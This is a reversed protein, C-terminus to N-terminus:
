THLVHIIFILLASQEILYDTQYGNRSYEGHYARAYAGVGGRIVGQGIRSGFGRLGCLDGIFTGRIVLVRYARCDRNIFLSRIGNHAYDCVGFLPHAGGVVYLLALDAFTRAYDYRVVAVYQGVIVDDLVAVVVLNQEGAAVLDLGSQHTGVRAGIDRHQLDLILRKLCDLDTRGSVQLDTFGYDCDAVGAAAYKGVRYSLANYGRKLAVHAVREGARYLGYLVIRGNVGTVRAARQEVCLTLQYANVCELVGAASVRGGSVFTQAKCDRYVGCHGDCLLQNLVALNTTRRQAYGARRERTRVFSYAAIRRCAYYDAFNGGITRGTLGTQLSVVEDGLNVARANCRHVVQGGYQVGM